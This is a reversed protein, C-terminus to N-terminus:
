WAGLLFRMGSGVVEVGGHAAMYADWAKQRATLAPGSVLQNAGGIASKMDKFGVIVWRNYHGGGQGVITNGMNVLMGPPNHKSHFKNYEADFKDTDAVDLLYYRQFPYRTSTDGYLALHRGTASGAGDKIYQNLKTIFLEFNVNGGGSYMNGVDELTGLFVISHTAKMDQNKFHNEFLRVFIGEPKNASYYDDVLKYVTAENHPEVVFSYMTYYNDQASLTLCLIFAFAFVLKKM